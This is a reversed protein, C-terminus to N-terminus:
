GEKANFWELNKQIRALQGVPVDKMSEILRRGEEKKGLNWCAISVLDKLKWDWVDRHIFLVDNPIQYDVNCCLEWVREWNQEKYLLEVLAFIAELRSPRSYHANELVEKAQEIEGMKILCKGLCFKSYYVEEEWGGKACRKEYVAKAKDWQGLNLHSNGLYFLWRPLVQCEPNDKIHKELLRIDREFKDSRNGGDYHEFFGIDENVMRIHPKEFKLYEHTPGVYYCECTRKFLKTNSYELDGLWKILYVDKNLREKWGENFVKLEIDADILLLYDCSSWEQAGKVAKTRNSGFDEWVDDNIKFRKDSSGLIRRAKSLTRDTSGTDSIYVEDVHPLFAKLCREIIREENKIMMVACVKM